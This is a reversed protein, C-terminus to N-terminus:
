NAYNQIEGTCHVAYYVGAGNLPMTTHISLYKIFYICPIWMQTSDRPIWILGGMTHGTYPHLTGGVPFFNKAPLRIVPPYVNGFM